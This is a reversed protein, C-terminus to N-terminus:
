EIKRGVRGKVANSQVPMLRHQLLQVWEAHTRRRQKQGCPVVFTALRDLQRTFVMLGVDFFGIGQFVLATFLVPLSVLLVGSMILLMIYFIGYVSSCITCVCLATQRVKRSHMCPSDPHGAEPVPLLGCCAHYALVRYLHMYSALLCHCSLM